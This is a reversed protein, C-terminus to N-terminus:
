LKTGINDSRNERTEWYKKGNRSMRLGPVRAKRAMDRPISKRTGPVQPLVKLDKRKPGMDKWVSTTTAM